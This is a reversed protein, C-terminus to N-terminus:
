NRELRKYLNSQKFINSDSCSGYAGVEIAIFKYDADVLAMLVTSFYSKYNFFESDSGDPKCMGIHKGDVARICNPFDTRHNFEDAISLWDEENKEAM